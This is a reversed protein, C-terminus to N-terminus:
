LISWTKTMRTMEDYDTHDIKLPVISIYGEHVIRHDGISSDHEDDAFYGAMLLCDNGNEDKGHDFEEVWRGQGRRAIKIGKIEDATIDPFNVNLYVGGVPPNDLFNQMISDAYRQFASFDPHESHTNISFGISPIGYVTGEVCAGLTGSYLQAVSCNSGHNIGSVVIDPLKGKEYCENLAAKVCDVPTGSLTYVRFGEEESIKKLYLPPGLTLAASKGSQPEAPAVVTVNGYKRMMDALIHIGEANISDDNTILIERKPTM